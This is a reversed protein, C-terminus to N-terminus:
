RETEENFGVDRGILMAGVKGSAGDRFGAPSSTFKDPNRFTGFVSPITEM